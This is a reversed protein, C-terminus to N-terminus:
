VKGSAARALTNDATRSFDAGNQARSSTNGLRYSGCGSGTASASAPGYLRTAAM